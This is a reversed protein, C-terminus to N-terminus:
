VSLKTIVITTPTATCVPTTADDTTIIAGVVYTLTSAGWGQPAHCVCDWSVTTSSSAPITQPTVGNIINAQGAAVPAADPNDANQVYLIPYVGTIKATGANDKSVTATVTFKQSTKAASPSLALTATIAM